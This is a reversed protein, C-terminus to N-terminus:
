HTVLCQVHIFGFLLWGYALMLILCNESSIIAVFICKLLTRGCLLLITRQVVGAVFIIIYHFRFCMRLTFLEIQNESQCSSSYYNVVGNSDSIVHSQADNSRVFIISLQFKLAWWNTILSHYAINPSPGHWHAIHYESFLWFYIRYLYIVYSKKKFYITNLNQVTEIEFYEFV